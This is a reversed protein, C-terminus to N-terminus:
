KTEIAFLKSGFEIPTANEHIIEIITGDVDSEIENMLKMAEVICLTQGKKVKDGVSAYPDADPSPSMYFTGVLPAIVYHINAKSQNLEEAVQTAPSLPTESLKNNVQPNATSSTPGTYSTMEGQLERKLTLKFEDKEVTVESLDATGMMQILEKIEKLEM